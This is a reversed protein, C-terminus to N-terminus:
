PTGEVERMSMGARPVRYEGPKGAPIAELGNLTLYTPKGDMVDGFEERRFTAVECLIFLTGVADKAYFRRLEKLM